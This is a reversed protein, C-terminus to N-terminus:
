VDIAGITRVPSALLGLARAVDAQQGLAGVAPGAATPDSGIALRLALRALAVDVLRELDQGLRAVRQDVAHGEGALAVAAEDAAPVQVGGLRDVGAVTGDAGVLPAQGPTLLLGGRRDLLRALLCGGLGLIIAVAGVLLAQAVGLAVVLRVVLHDALGDDSGVRAGADVLLGVAFVLRDVIAHLGLARAALLQGVFVDKWFVLLVVSPRSGCWGGTPRM